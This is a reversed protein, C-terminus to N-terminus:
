KLIQPFVIEFKQETHIKMTDVCFSGFVVKM